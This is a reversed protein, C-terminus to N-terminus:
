EAAVAVIQETGPEMPSILQTLHRVYRSKESTVCGGATASALFAALLPVRFRLLFRAATSM